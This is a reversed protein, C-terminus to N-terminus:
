WARLGAPQYDTVVDLTEEVVDAPVSATCLTGGFDRV